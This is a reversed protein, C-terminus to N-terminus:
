FQSQGVGATACKYSHIVVVVKERRLRGTSLWIDKGRGLQLITATGLLQTNFRILNSPLLDENQGLLALVVPERTKRRSGTEVAM